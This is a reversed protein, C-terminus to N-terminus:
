ALKFYVIGAVLVLGLYSVFLLGTQRHKVSLERVTKNSIHSLYKVNKRSLFAFPIVLFEPSDLEQWIKPEFNKVSQYYKYEVVGSWLMLLAFISTVVILILTLM